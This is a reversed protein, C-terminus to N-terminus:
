DKAKVICDYSHRNSGIYSEVTIQGTTFLREMAATFDQKTLGDRDPQKGFLTPAYNSANPKHSVRRNQSQLRALMRLFTEDALSERQRRDLQHEAQGDGGDPVFLKGGDDWTLKLQKEATGLNSKQLDLLLNGTKEAQGGDRDLEAHLYMRARVANHWQTSGSYGESARNAQATPKNVHSILVVAGQDAEILALLSNVFSKVQSRDNENGGFTDSVGDIFLVDDGRVRDEIAVYATTLPTDGGKFTITEHGVLDIVILWGALSALDIGFYQCIRKLRWHLVNARDECSLYVVRRRTTENGMWPKGAAICVAMFLACYSKGVGGHGALMTAYGAPLWDQIIFAPPEPETEALAVLDL